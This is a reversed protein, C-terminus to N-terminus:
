SVHQIIKAARSYRYRDIVPGVSDKRSNRQHELRCRLQFVCESLSPVPPTNMCVNSDDPTFSEPSVLPTAKPSISWQTQISRNVHFADVLKRPGIPFSTPPICSSKLRLNDPLINTKLAHARKEREKEAVLIQEKIQSLKIALDVRMRGLEARPRTFMSEPMSNKKALTRFSPPVRRFHHYEIPRPICYIM